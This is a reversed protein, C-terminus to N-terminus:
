TISVKLINESLVPFEEICLSNNKLICVPGSLCCPQGSVEHRM